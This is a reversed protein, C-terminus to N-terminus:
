FITFCKLNNETIDIDRFSESIIALAVYYGAVKQADREELKAVELNKILTEVEDDTM